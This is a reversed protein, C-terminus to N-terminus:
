SAAVLPLGGCQELWVLLEDEPLPRSYLYGQVIDCGLERLCHLTQVDEVGEAVM